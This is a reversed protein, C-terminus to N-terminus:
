GPRRRGARKMGPKRPATAPRAPQRPVRDWYPREGTSEVLYDVFARVKLSLNRRSLYVAYLNLEFTKWETLLPVLAGRALEEGVIFTPQLVIGEGAVALERLVDGNTAHVSPQVRVQTVEGQADTFSWDDGAWLYSFSLTEHRNLEAPSRPTGRRKLYAPSACVVMGVPALRRAILNGSLQQAIRLAVDVGENVLDVVRDTLDLDLKLQPYRRRFAPLLRSLHRVGFSLPATVRLLGVPQTSQLGALAEAEAVDVLIARSRECFDAGADTLSLRRTSRNLLRTGLHAELAAVQRSVAATSTDLAEAARAFSGLDVVKVLVRMGHIVDM